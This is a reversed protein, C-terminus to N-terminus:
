SGLDKIFRDVAGLQRGLSDSEGNLAMEIAEADPKSPMTGLFRYGDPDAKFLHWMEQETQLLAGEALPEIHFASRWISLFGKRRGRAVSGIGVGADELKGNLLVVTGQWNNCIQEVMEYDSPQPGIALLLRGKIEPDDSLVLDKLALCHTALEPSERQALAASGADPWGLLVEHGSAELAKALRLAPQLLRLGEFRWTVTWRRQQRDSLAQEVSVLTMAEAQYLDAPLTVSL